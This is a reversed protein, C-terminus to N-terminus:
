SKRDFDNLDDANYSNELSMMPVLHSVTPFNENLGRAVRQTPSDPTKLHPDSEELDKLKKFLTDYDFDTIILKLNCM